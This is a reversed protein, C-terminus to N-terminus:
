NLSVNGNKDRMADFRKAGKPRQLTLMSVYHNQMEAMLGDLEIEALVNYTIGNITETSM